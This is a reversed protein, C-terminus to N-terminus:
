RKKAVVFSLFGFMSQSLDTMLSYVDDTNCKVCGHMGVYTASITGGVTDSSSIYPHNNPIYCHKLIHEGQKHVKGALAKM